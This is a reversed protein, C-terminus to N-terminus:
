PSKPFIQELLKQATIQPIVKFDGQALKVQLQQVKEQRVDPALRIAQLAQRIDQGQQSLQLEQVSSNGSSKESNSSSGTKQKEGVSQPQLNQIIPEIPLGDTM